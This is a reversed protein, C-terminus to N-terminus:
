VQDSFIKKFNYKIKFILVKRVSFNMELEDKLRIWSRIYYPIYKIKHFLYSKSFKFSGLVNNGHQRYKVLPEDLFLIKGYRAVKISIWQDYLFFNTKIPFALDVAPRNLMITNGTVVSHAILKEFDGLIVPSDKRDRWFSRSISNLESDVIELDTCVMLPFGERGSEEQKIRDLSKKIKESYWIDDQDCFMVYPASSQMLLRGFSQSVGLGKEEDSILFLKGPNTCRWREIIESTGDTSGDDRLLIRWNSFSQNLISDLQEKLYKSGNFTPILIDIM